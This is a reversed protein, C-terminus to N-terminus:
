MLDGSLHLAKTTPSQLRLIIMHCSVVMRIDSFFTFQPGLGQEHYSVNCTGRKVLRGVVWTFPKGARGLNHLPAKLTHKWTCIGLESLWSSNARTVQWRVPTPAWSMQKSLSGKKCSRQRATPFKELRVTGHVKSSYGVRNAMAKERRWLMNTLLVRRNMWM